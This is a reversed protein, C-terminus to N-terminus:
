RTRQLTGRSAARQQRRRRCIHTKQCLRYWSGPRVHIRAGIAYRAGDDGPRLNVLYWDGIEWRGGFRRFVEDRAATTALRRGARRGEARGDRLGRAHGRDFIALYADSGPAVEARAQARGTREGEEVGQEYRGEPDAAARGGVFALGAAALALCLTITLSFAVSQVRM